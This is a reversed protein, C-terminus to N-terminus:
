GFAQVSSKVKEVSQIDIERQSTYGNHTLCSRVLTLKKRLYNFKTVNCFVTGENTLLLTTKPDDPQNPSQTTLIADFVHFHNNITSFTQPDVCLLTIHIIQGTKQM